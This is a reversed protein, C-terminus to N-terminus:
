DNALYKYGVATKLAIDIANCVSYNGNESSSVFVILHLNETVWSDEVEMAFLRSATEGQDLNGLYYGHWSGNANSDAVRVCNHHTDYDYTPDTEKINYYDSQVAYIENELLWVGVKYNNNEHAKVEVNVLLGKDSISSNASIGAKAGNECYLSELLAILGADAATGHSYSQSLNITGYPYSSVNPASIYAPDHSNYSHVNGLVIKNQWDDLGMVDKTLKVMLPTYGCENGLYNQIFINHHFDTKSPYLDIPLAPFTLIGWCGEFAKEGTDINDSDPPTIHNCNYFAYDDIEELGESFEVTELNSCEFFANKGIRTVTSPITLETLSKYMILANDKVETVGEPITIETVKSDDIYLDAGLYLPNSSCNFGEQHPAYNNNMMFDLSLWHGINSIHVKQLETCDEFANYDIQELSEPLTVEKLSSCGRFANYGICQVKDPIIISELYDCGDFTRPEIVEINEPLTISQIKTYDFAGKGIHTVTSPITISELLGCESFAWQGIKTVGEPIIVSTLTTNGYFMEDPIETIGAPITVETLPEGNVHIEEFYNGEGKTLAFLQEISYFNVTGVGADFAYPGLASLSEPFSIYEIYTDEFYIGPIIKVSTFYKFEDFSVEADWLLSVDMDKLSTVAAAESFSLKGDNDTDYALVCCLEMLEDEFHIISDSYQKILVSCQKDSDIAKFVIEATRTENSKNATISFSHVSAEFSTETLWDVDPMLVEYDINSMVTVEFDAEESTFTKEPQSVAIYESAVDGIIAVPMKLLSSRFVTNSKTTSLQHNNGNADTVTVTFGEKFEVSPLAIIFETPATMSLKVPADCELTVTKEANDSITIEPAKGNVHAKVKAEGALPESQNGTVTISQVSCEGMLQLKLGGLINKFNLEYNDTSETIAVMPFTGQGFSNEAYTQESPIIVNILEYSKVPESADAKACLIEKSMPYIAINHELATGASFGESVAGVYEFSASTQGASEDSIKYIRGLTSGKFILLEDNESWRINNNEDLSTKTKEFSETKGTFDTHGIVPEEIVNMQCGSMCLVAALTMFLEKKMINLM